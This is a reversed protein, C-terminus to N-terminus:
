RTVDAPAVLAVFQDKTVVHIGFAYVLNHDPLQGTNVRSQGKKTVPAKLLGLVKALSERTLWWWNQFGDGM